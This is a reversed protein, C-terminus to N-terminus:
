AGGSKINQILQATLAESAVCPKAYNQDSSNTATFEVVLTQSDNVIVSTSCDSQGNADQSSDVAQYGAIPAIKQRWPLNAFSQYLLDQTPTAIRSVGIAMTPGVVNQPLFTCLPGDNAQQPDKKRLAGLYPAVQADTMGSCTNAAFAATNLPNVIEPKPTTSTAPNSASNAPPSAPTGSQCGALGALVFAGAVVAAASSIRV